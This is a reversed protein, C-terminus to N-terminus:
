FLIIFLYIFLFILFFIFLFIFSFNFLYKFFIIFITYVQQAIDEPSNVDFIIDIDPESLIFSKQVHRKLNVFSDLRSKNTMKATLLPQNGM